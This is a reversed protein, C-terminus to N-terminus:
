SKFGIVMTGKTDLPSADLRKQIAAVDQSAILKVDDESLGFDRASQEPNAEHKALAEPNTNLEMMYKVLTDTM